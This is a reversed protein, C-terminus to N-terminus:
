TAYKRKIKTCNKVYKTFKNWKSMYMELCYIEVGFHQLLYKTQLLNSSRTPVMKEPKYNDHPNSRSYVRTTISLFNYLIFLKVRQHRNSIQCHGSIWLVKYYIQFDFNVFKWWKQVIKFFLFSYTQPFM